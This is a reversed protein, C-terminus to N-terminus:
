GKNKKKYEAFTLGTVIKFQKAANSISQYGVDNCLTSIKANENNLLEKKLKDIRIDTLAKIFSLNHASFAAQLTSRSVFLKDSVFSLSVDSINEIMIKKADDVIKKQRASISRSPYIVKNKSNIYFQVINSITILKKELNNDNVNITTLIETFSYEFINDKIVGPTINEKNIINLNKKPILIGKIIRTTPYDIVLPSSLDFISVQNGDVSFTKDNCTVNFNSFSLLLYISDSINFKITQPTSKVLFFELGLTTTKKQVSGFFHGNNTKEILAGHVNLMDHWEDFSDTECFFNNM